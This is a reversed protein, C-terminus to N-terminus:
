LRRVARLEGRVLSGHKRLARFLRYPYVFPLLWPRKALIPAYATMFTRDPFLRRLLYRLQRCTMEFEAADLRALEGRIYAEDLTESRSRACQDIDLLFRLGAGGNRYHKCGHVVTYVYLDSDSFHYGYECGEDPILREKVNQYYSGWVQGPLPAFLYRHMEFNYLPPKQYVDHAGLQYAETAYGHTLFWDRVREQGNVDYLIDNDTMERLYPEPYDAALVIGKLPLYWIGAEELFAYLRSREASFRLYRELAHADDERWASSLESGEALFPSVARYSLASLSCLRSMEHVADLDMAEVRAAEPATGRAACGVLYILDYGTQERETSM